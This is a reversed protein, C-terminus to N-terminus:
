DVKRRFQLVVYEAFSGQAIVPLPVAIRVAVEELKVWRWDEPLEDGPRPFTEAHVAQWLREADQKAEERLRKAERIREM